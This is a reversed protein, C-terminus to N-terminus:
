LASLCNLTYLSLPLCMEYIDMGVIVQVTSHIPFYFCPIFLYFKTLVWKHFIDQEQSLNIKDALTPDIKEKLKEELQQTTELCYEASTLISFLSLVIFM